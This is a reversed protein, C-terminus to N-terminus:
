VDHVVSRAIFVLFAERCDNWGDAIGNAYADDEESDSLKPYDAKAPFLDPNIKCTFINSM